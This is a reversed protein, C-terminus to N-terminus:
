RKKKLERRAETKTLLKVPRIRTCVGMEWSINDIFRTNAPISCQMIYQRHIMSLDSVAASLTLFYHIGEHIEKTEPNMFCYETSAKLKITKVRKGFKNLAYYIKRLMYTTQFFLSHITGHDYKVIKYVIRPSTTIGKKVEQHSYISLCM